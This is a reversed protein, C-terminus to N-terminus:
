EFRSSWVNMFGSDDADLWLAIANGQADFRILPDNGNVRDLRVPASWTGGAYRAAWVAIGIDDGIDIQNWVVIANGTRDGAAQTGSVASMDVRPLSKAAPLPEPASWHDSSATYHSASIRDIMSGPVLPTGVVTANGNGDSFAQKNSLFGTVQQILGASAGGTLRLAWTTANQTQDWVMVGSGNADIALRPSAAMLSTAHIM